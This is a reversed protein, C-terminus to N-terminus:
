QGDNLATANQNQWTSFVGQSTYNKNLFKSVSTSADYIIVAQARPSSLNSFDSSNSIKLDTLLKYYDISTKYGILWNIEETNFDKLAIPRTQKIETMTEVFAPNLSNQDLSAEYLKSLSLDLYEKVGNQEIFERPNTINLKALNREIARIQGSIASGTSFSFCIEGCDQLRNNLNKPNNDGGFTFDPRVIGARRMKQYTVAAKMESPSLDFLVEVRNYGGARQSAYDVYKQVSAWAIGTTNTENNRRAGPTDRDIFHSGLRLMGHDNRYDTQHIVTIGMSQAQIKSLEAYSTANALLAVVKKGGYSVEAAPINKDFIFKQYFNNDSFLGACLNKAQVNCSVAFLAGAVVFKIKKM